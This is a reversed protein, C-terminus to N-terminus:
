LVSSPADKGSISKFAMTGSDSDATQRVWPDLDLMKRITYRGFLRLTALVPAALLLGIFGLLNAAVIAAVLVAAPHVGLAQGYLRPTILNDFVQDLLIATGLVLIMYYLPPLHFYNSPMFLTVVGTVVWTILPGIYPVFRAMGALIALALANRVGLITMLIAFAMMTIIFLFLQGRLFANWIRGLRQGLRRFDADYGPIEIKAIQDMPVNEPAEALTFYSVLLIFFMWGLTSITSSAVTSVLGGARGLVPQVIRVVENLITNWDIRSFDLHFPGLTYVHQSLNEVFDPLDIVFQNVVGILNQTQQAVALGLV